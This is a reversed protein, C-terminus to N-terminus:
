LLLHSQIASRGFLILTIGPHSDLGMVCIQYKESKKIKLLLSDIVSLMKDCFCHGRDSFPKMKLESFENQNSM